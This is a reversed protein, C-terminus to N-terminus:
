AYVEQFTLTANEIYDASRRHHDIIAIKNTKELLVPSEVYSKKHTDVIILLTNQNIKFCGIAVGSFIYNFKLAM